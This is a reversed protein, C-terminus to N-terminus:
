PRVRRVPPLKALIFHMKQKRHGRNESHRDFAHAGLGLQLFQSGEGLEFGL